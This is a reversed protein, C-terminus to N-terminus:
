DPLRGKRIIFDAFRVQEEQARLSDPEAISRYIGWKPRTFDRDLQGRWMDINSEDINIIEQNDSMRTILMKFAGGSDAEAFTAQVFITLWEDTITFWDIEALRTDSDRTGDINNGKSYRIQLTNGTSTREAGTITIVPQSDNGNVNDEDEPSYNRAKIQFFHSFNSSLELQSSVKFKWMYQFTDGEFGLLTDDSKDFTKIENRQRDSQVGRDFDLDRHALFVFHPGVINDEDEIIHEVNNHDSPYFDPAEISGQAYKDEILSYASLGVNPGDANLITEFEVIFDSQPDPPPAPTPNPPVPPLAVTQSSSGGCAFLLMSSFFLLLICCTNKNKTTNATNLMSHGKTEKYAYYM